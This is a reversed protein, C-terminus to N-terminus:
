KIIYLSEIEYEEALVKRFQAIGSTGEYLLTNRLRTIDWAQALADQTSGIHILREMRITTMIDIKHPHIAMLINKIYDINWLREPKILYLVDGGRSLTLYEADTGNLTLSVTAISIEQGMITINHDGFNKQAM